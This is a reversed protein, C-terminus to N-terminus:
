SLKKRDNNDYDTMTMMRSSIVPGNSHGPYLSPRHNQNSCDLLCWCTQGFENVATYHFLINAIAIVYECASFM